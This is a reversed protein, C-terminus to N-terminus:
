EEGGGQTWRRRELVSGETKCQLINLKGAWVRQSGSVSEWQDRCHSKVPDKEDGAHLCDKQVRGCRVRCTVM